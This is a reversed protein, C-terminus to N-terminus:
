HKNSLFISPFTDIKIGKSTKNLFFFCDIIGFNLIKIEYSVIDNM